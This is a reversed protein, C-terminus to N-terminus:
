LLAMECIQSKIITFVSYFLGKKEKKLDTTHYFAHLLINYCQINTISNMFEGGTVPARFGWTTANSWNFLPFWKQFLADWFLCQRASINKKRWQIFNCSWAGLKYHLNWELLMELGGSAGFVNISATAEKLNGITFFVTTTSTPLM